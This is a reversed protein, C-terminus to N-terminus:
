FTQYFITLIQHDDVEVLLAPFISGKFGFSDHGIVTVIPLKYQQTLRVCIDLTLYFNNNSDPSGIYWITMHAKIDQSVAGFGLGFELCTTVDRKGPYCKVNDLYLIKINVMEITIHIIYWIDIESM